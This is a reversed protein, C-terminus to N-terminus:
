VTSAGADTSSGTDTSPPQAPPPVSPIPNEPDKGLKNLFDVEGALAARIKAKGEESVSGELAAEIKKTIRDAADTSAKDMQAIADLTEQEFKSVAMAIQNEKELIAGLHAKIESLDSPGAGSSLLDVVEQGLGHEIRLTGFKIEGSIELRM